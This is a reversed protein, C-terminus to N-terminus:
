QQFLMLKAFEPLQWKDAYRVDCLQLGNAPATPGAHRRDVSALVTAVHEPPYEKRGVQLLTGVINRVMHLLFADATVTLVIMDNERSLTLETIHRIATRAQCGAGRFASFDHKGLLSDAAAQMATVCLPRPEWTLFDHFLASRIPHNYILYRYRRQIASFRAHFDAAVPRVWAIRIDSPCNTNAGLIWARDSRVVDTDFHIVQASAHVGRDTRGACVIDVPQDAVFSLASEVAAQVTPLDQKQKQWGFYHSGRYTVGMALRQM